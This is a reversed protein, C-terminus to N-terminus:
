IGEYTEVRGTRTGNVNYLRITEQKSQHPKEISLRLYEIALVKHVLEGTTHVGCRVSDTIHTIQIGKRCCFWSPNSTLKFLLCFIFIKSIWKFAKCPLSPTTQWKRTPISYKWNKFEEFSLPSICASSHSRLWLRWPGVRYAHKRGRRAKKLSIQNRNDRPFFSSSRM